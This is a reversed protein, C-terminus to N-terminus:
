KKFWFHKWMGKYSFEFKCTKTDYLYGNIYTKGDIKFNTEKNFIGKPINKVRKGNIIMVKSMKVTNNKNEPTM